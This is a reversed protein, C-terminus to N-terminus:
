NGWRGKITNEEMQTLGGQSRERFLEGAIAYRQAKAPNACCQEVICDALSTAMSLRPYMAFIEAAQADTIFDALPGGFDIVVGMRTLLPVVGRREAIGACAHLAIAQWVIDAEATTFSTGSLFQVALDAGEVEFRQPGNGITTLGMDHFLCSIFLLQEHFDVGPQLGKHAAYLRAFIFSRVSHNYVSTTEHTQVFRLAAVAVKDGPLCLFDALGTGPQMSPSPHM